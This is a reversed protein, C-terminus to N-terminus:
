EQTQVILMISGQSSDCEVQHNNWDKSQCFTSCYPTRRCLSCEAFADRNCNACKKVDPLDDSSPQLGATVSSITEVDFDNRNDICNDKARKLEDLLQQKETNWKYKAVRMSNHFHNVMKMMRSSMNELKKFIDEFSDNPQVIDMQPVDAAHILMSSHDDEKGIDGNDLSVGPSSDCSDEDNSLCTGDDLKKKKSNCGGGSAKKSRIRKYPTFLRVPGTASEDDCCAACTCSMAHPLLVGDYILTQLSRGGFRISRKWDKSSARGCLAEFESPTYWQNTYRICKGRCGSGFKKKHLEANTTKCRIPLVPLRAAETYSYCPVTRLPSSVNQEADEEHVNNSTSSDQRIVIHATKLTGDEARVVTRWTDSDAQTRSNCNLYSNDVCLLPKFDGSESLQLSEASIVNFTGAASVNILQGVPISSVQVQSTSAVAASAAAHEAATTYAAAASVSVVSGDAEDDAPSEKVAAVDGDAARTDTEAMDTQDAVNESHRHPQLPRRDDATAAVQQQQLQQQQQLGLQQQQQQDDESYGSLSPQARRGDETVSM